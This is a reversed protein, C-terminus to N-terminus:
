AHTGKTKKNVLEIVREEDKATLDDGFKADPRGDHSLLNVAEEYSIRLYPRALIEKLIEIDRRYSTTLTKVHNEVIGAIMAKTAKEIRDLLTEYMKEEDYNERSMGAITADFEEETLRFQRLHRSDEVEEDRGSNIITYVGHSEQLAQELSLQGTQTFFLPLSLRNGVRFLTDVNECAGTIGVIAPVDVYQLGAKKYHEISSYFMSSAIGVLNDLM